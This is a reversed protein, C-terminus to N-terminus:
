ATEQERHFQYLLQLARDATEADEGGTESIGRLEEV